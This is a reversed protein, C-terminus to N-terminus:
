VSIVVWTKGTVRTEEEAVATAPVEASELHEGLTTTAEADKLDMEMTESHAMTDTDVSFSYKALSVFPHHPSYM